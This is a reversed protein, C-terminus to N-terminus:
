GWAGVGFSCPHWGSQLFIIWLVSFKIKKYEIEFLFWDFHIYRESPARSTELSPAAAITWSSLVCKSWTVLAAPEVSCRKCRPWRLDELIRHLCLCILFRLYFHYFWFPKPCLKIFPFPPWFFFIFQGCQSCESRKGHRYFLLFAVVFGRVMKTSKYFNEYVRIHFNKEVVLECVFCLHVLDSDIIPLHPELGPSLCFFIHPVASSVCYRSKFNDSNNTYFEIKSFDNKLWIHVIQFENQYM